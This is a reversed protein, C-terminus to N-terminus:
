RKRGMWLSVVNLRSLLVLPFRQFFFSMLFFVEVWELSSSGVRYFLDPMPMAGRWDGRDGKM